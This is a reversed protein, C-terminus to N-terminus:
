NALRTFDKLIISKLEMSNLIEDNNEVGTEECYKKLREPDLVVFSVLWDHLSDGHIL